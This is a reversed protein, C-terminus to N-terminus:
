EIYATVLISRESVLQGAGCSADSQIRYYSITDEPNTSQGCSIVASCNNLGTVGFNLSVGDVNVCALDAGARSADPHMLQNMAFQAASEASYFAQLSVAERISSGGSQSSMKAMAVALAALGVILIISLPILFGQQSKIRPYM